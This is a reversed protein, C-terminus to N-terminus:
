KLLFRRSGPETTTFQAAIAPYAAALAKTNIKESDKATKWTALTEGLYAITEADKFKMKITEELGGKKEELAKLEKKVEKLDSYAKAIDEGVEALKGPSHRAYKILIDAANIAEPERNGLINDVWFREVDEKIVEFFDPVLNIDVYDFDRGACLWALSGTQTESVGLLYQLQIFWTKPIDDRSVNMMTTKCELIGKNDNNRKMEPLWYTRDPSARFFPKETNVAIWDIASAKIIERGSEESWLQSVAGELLHGLRMPMNQELPPDLKKKRRWLQYPTQYPNMSLISSVESSGIGEERHKLWEEHSAPRIITTAM